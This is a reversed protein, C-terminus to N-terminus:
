ALTCSSVKIVSFRLRALPRTGILVAGSALLLVKTSAFKKGIFGGHLHKSKSYLQAGLISRKLPLAVSVLVLRAIAVRQLFFGRVETDLGKYDSGVLLNRTVSRLARFTMTELGLIIAEPVKELSHELDDDSWPPSALLPQTNNDNM